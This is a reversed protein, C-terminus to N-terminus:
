AVELRRFRRLARRERVSTGAWVGHDDGSRVNTLVWELCSGAVPCQAGEAYFDSTDYGRCLAKSRWQPDFTAQEPWLVDVHTGLREAIREALDPAVTTDPHRRWRALTARSIGLHYAYAIDSRRQQRALIPAPSLHARM